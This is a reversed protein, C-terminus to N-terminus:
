IKKLNPITQQLQQYAGKLWPHIVKIDHTLLYHIYFYAAHELSHNLNAILGDLYPPTGNQDWAIKDAVFLLLDLNSYDKKLTTHCGIASCIHNDTIHFISKAMVASIKQHIILPFAIEEECLHIGMKNAVVIRKDIPYIASIDHLWGALKAQYIDINFHKALIAACDGVKISHYYTELKNNKDFFHYLDTSNM